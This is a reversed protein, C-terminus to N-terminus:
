QLQKTIRGVLFLGPINEFATERLRETFFIYKIAKCYECSFMQTLTEKLLTAPRFGQLKILLSELM